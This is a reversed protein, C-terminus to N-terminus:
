LAGPNIREFRAREAEDHHQIQEGLLKLLSKLREKEDFSAQSFQHDLKQDIIKMLEVMVLLNEGLCDIRGGLSASNTQERELADLARSIIDSLSLNTAVSHSKLRSVLEPEVRVPFNIKRAAQRRM